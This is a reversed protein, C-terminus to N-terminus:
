GGPRYRALLTVEWKGRVGLLRPLRRLLAESREAREPSWGAERVLEELEGPGIYSVVPNGLNNWAGLEVRGSTVSGVARKLWFLAWMLLSPSFTPEVVILRGGPTILKTCNELAQRATRRSSRRSRGVLHHLVAGVIVFDFRGSQSQVFDADLVSAQFGEFEVRGQAIRLAQESIDSGALTAGPIQAAIVELVNGTGCGVELISPTDGGLEALWSLAFNFRSPDYDTLHSEFYRATSDKAM